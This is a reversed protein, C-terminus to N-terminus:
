GGYAYDFMKAIREEEKFYDEISDRIRKVLDKEKELEYEMNNILQQFSLSFSTPLSPLDEQVNISRMKKSGPNGTRYLLYDYQKPNGEMDNIKRMINRQRDSYDDEFKSEYLKKMKDIAHHKDEIVTMGKQYIRIASSINVRIKEAGDGKSMYMDNHSYSIAKNKSLANIVAELGHAHASVEFNKLFSTDFEKIESVADMITDVDKQISRLTEFVEILEGLYYTPNVATLLDNLTLTSLKDLKTSISELATEINHVASLLDDKDEQTIYGVDVFAQAIPGLNHYLVEVNSLLEPVKEKMDLLMYVGKYISNFSHKSLNASGIFNDKQLKFNIGALEVPFGAVEKLKGWFSDAQNVEDISEGVDKYANAINLHLGKLEDIASLTDDVVEPNFGTLSRMFGDFGDENYDDSFGALFMQVTQLDKDPIKGILNRITTVDPNTDIFEEREGIGMFGRVVSAAYLMDEESTDIHISSEDIKNKYYEETFSKLQDPPLNYMDTRNIIDFKLKLSDYFDSDINALQYITPPAANITYVEDFRNEDSQPMLQLLVINNGGLSHGFGIKKLDPLSVKNSAMIKKNVTKYFKEADNFQGDGAGVYIGMLNNGWDLPRWNDKEKSESGRTITIAQNIQNDVSHFHIVTGDFGSDVKNEQDKKLEQDSRYITLESPLEEGTEEFYIRKVENKFEKASLNDYEIKMIRARLLKTNLLEENDM